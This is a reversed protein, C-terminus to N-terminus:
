PRRQYTDLGRLADARIRKQVIPTWGLLLGPAGLAMRSWAWLDFDDEHRAILGDRFVFRARIDNRVPRRAKGFTYTAVWRASGQEDDAVVDSAVVQLDKARGCLMRWMDRARDGHLEGFVPDRFVVDAHYCAAMTEADGKAFADYFRQVLAVHHHM